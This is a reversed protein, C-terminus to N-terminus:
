QWFLEKCAQAHLASRHYDMWAQAAAQLRQLPLCKKTVGKGVKSYPQLDVYLLHLVLEEVLAAKSRPLPGQVAHLEKLMAKLCAVLNVQGARGRGDGGAGGGGGGARGTRGARAGAGAGNRYICVGSRGGM